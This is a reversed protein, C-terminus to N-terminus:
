AAPLRVAAKVSMIFANGAGALAMAGGTKPGDPTSRSRISCPSGPSM